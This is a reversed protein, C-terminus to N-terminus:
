VAEYTADFIDAKCPYFEGAIGKIVWDGLSATMEGELTEIKLVPKGDVFDAYCDCTVFSFVQDKTQETFQLAEIVIPRKRFQTM